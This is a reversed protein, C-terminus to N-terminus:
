RKEWKLENNEYRKIWNCNACLLQYKKPNKEKEKKWFVATLNHSLMRREKSGGGDVHDIQLARWDKYGCRQCEGGFMRVIEIRNRKNYDRRKERERELNGYYSKDANRKIREKNAKYYCKRCLGTKWHKAVWEDGCEHCKKKEIM